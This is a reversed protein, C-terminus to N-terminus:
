QEGLKMDPSYEAGEVTKIVAQAVRMSGAVPDHGYAPNGHLQWGKSLAESVRHCFSSDDPGTLVRYLQM